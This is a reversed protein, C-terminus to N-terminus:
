ITLHGIHQWHQGQILHFYNDVIEILAHQYEQDSQNREQVPLQQRQQLPSRVGRALRVEDVADRFPDGPQNALLNSKILHLEVPEVAYFLTGLHETFSIYWFLIRNSQNDNNDM